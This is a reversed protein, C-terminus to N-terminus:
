AAESNESFFRQFKEYTRVTFGAGEELRSFFATDNMVKRGLTPLSMGETACFQRAQELLQTRLSTNHHINM